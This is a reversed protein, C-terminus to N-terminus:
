ALAPEHVETTSAISVIRPMGGTYRRVWCSDQSSIMGSPLRGHRAWSCDARTSIGPAVLSSRKMAAARLGCEDAGHETADHGSPGSQGASRLCRRSRLCRCRCRCWHRRSPRRSPRISLRISLPLPQDAKDAKAQEAAAKAQEAARDIASEFESFLLKVLGRGQQTALKPAVAKKLGDPILDLPLLLPIFLYVAPAMILAVLALGIVVVSFEALGPDGPRAGDGLWVLDLLEALALLVFVILWVVAGCITFIRQAVYLKSVAPMGKFYALVESPPKDMNLEHAAHYEQFDKEWAPDLTRLRERIARAEAGAALALIPVTVTVASAFAETMQVDL